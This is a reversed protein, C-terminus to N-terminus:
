CGGAVPPTPPPPHPTPPHPTHVCLPPLLSALVEFGFLTLPPPVHTWNPDMGTVGKRRRRYVHM